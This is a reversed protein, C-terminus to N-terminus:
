ESFCLAVHSFPETPLAIYDVPPPPAINEWSFLYPSRRARISGYTLLSSPLAIRLLLAILGDVNKRGDVRRDRPDIIRVSQLPTNIVDPKILYLTYPRPIVGMRGDAPLLSASKKTRCFGHETTTAVMFPSVDLAVTRTPTPYTYRPLNYRGHQGRSWKTVLVFRSVPTHGSHYSSFRPSTSVAKPPFRIPGRCTIATGYSLHSLM